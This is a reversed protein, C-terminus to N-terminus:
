SHKQLAYSNYGIILNRSEQNLHLQYFCHLKETGGLFFVKIELNKVLKTYNLM